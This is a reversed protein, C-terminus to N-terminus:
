CGTSTTALVNVTDCLEESRDRLHRLLGRVTAAPISLEAGIRGAGLGAAARTLVGLASKASDRRRPLCSAPLLVSTARWRM